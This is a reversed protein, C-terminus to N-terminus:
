GQGLPDIQNTIDCFPDASEPKIFGPVMQPLIKEVYTEYSRRADALARHAPEQEDRWDPRVLLFSSVDLMRHSVSDLVQPAHQAIWARDFHISNGALHRNKPKVPLRDLWGVVRSWARERVSTGEGHPTGWVEQLLGSGLHMQLVYDDMQPLLFGRDLRIVQTQMQSVITGQLDSAFAAIELVEGAKPDLGTTELDLWVLLTDNREM